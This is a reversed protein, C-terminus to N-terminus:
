DNTSVFISEFASETVYRLKRSIELQTEIESLSSRAIRFFHLKDNKSWRAAGEAINSPLSIAARRLQNTLSYLENRPFLRTIAYIAEVLEIAKNWVILRTHPRELM